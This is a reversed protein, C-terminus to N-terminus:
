WLGAAQRVKTAAAVRTHHQVHHNSLVVGVVLVLRQHVRDLVGVLAACLHANLELHIAWVLHPVHAGATCKALVLLGKWPSQALLRLRAQSLGAHKALVVKRVRCHNKVPVTLM